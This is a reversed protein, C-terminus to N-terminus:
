RRTPLAARPNRSNWGFKEAGQRYAETLHRASFETHKTPIKKSARQSPATRRSGNRARYSLEDLASELAFTGISEGPARMWTNAVTDLNSSRRSSTCTRRATSTARPSRVNSPTVATHPPPPSAPISSRPSDDTRGQASRLANNPSPAVVRGGSLRRRALAFTEGPALAKAAAACLPTHNWIGGKGGFGGGVYPAIM